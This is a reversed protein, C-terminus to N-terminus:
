FIVFLDYYRYVLIRFLMSELFVFADHESDLFQTELILFIAARIRFVSTSVLTDYECDPCSSMFRAAEDELIEGDNNADLETFLSALANEREKNGEVRALVGVAHSSLWSATSLVALAGLISIAKRLM